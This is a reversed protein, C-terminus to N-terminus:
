DGTKQRIPHFSNGVDRIFTIALFSSPGIRSSRLKKAFINPNADRIYHSNLKDIALLKM